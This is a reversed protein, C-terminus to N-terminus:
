DHKDEKKVKDYLYIISVSGVAFLYVGLYRQGVRLWSDYHHGFMLAFSFEIMALLGVIILAAMAISFFGWLIKKSM